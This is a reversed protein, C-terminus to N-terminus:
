ADTSIFRYLAYGRPELRVTIRQLSSGEIVGRHRWDSEISNLRVVKYRKGSDLTHHTLFPGLARTELNSGVCVLVEKDRRFAATSVGTTLTEPAHALEENYVHQQPEGGVKECLYAHLGVSEVLDFARGFFNM